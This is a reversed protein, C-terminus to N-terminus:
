AKFNNVVLTALDTPPPTVVEGPIPLGWAQLFERLTGHFYNIDVNREGWPPTRGTQTFQLAHFQPGEPRQGPKLSYNPIIMKLDPRRQKWLGPNAVFNQYGGVRRADGFYQIAKEIFANALATQDGVVQGNADEVDLFFCVKPHVRGKFKRDLFAKLVGWSDRNPRLFTYLLIGDLRGEDAMRIANDFNQEALTDMELSNVRFSFIRSPYDNNIPIDQHQSVDNWYVGFRDLPDVATTPKWGEKIVVDWEGTYIRGRFASDQWGKEDQLRLVMQLTEENWSRTVPLGVAAQWRGLGDKAKESDTKWLGSITYDDGELPGYSYGLPLPYDNPDYPKEPAWLGLYGDRLKQAFPAIQQANGQIQFHMEDTSAGGWDRGWFVTGEFLRLGERIKDVMWQPMRYSGMPWQTANIDVATGSLHNSNWVSNTASWGWDDRGGSYNFEIDQVNRDYWLCWGKLITTVDGKRTEMPAITGPINSKDLMDSSIQDWGNETKM